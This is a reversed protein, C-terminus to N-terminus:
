AGQVESVLVPQLLHALSTAGHGDCQEERPCRAGPVATVGWGGHGLRHSRQHSLFSLPSWRDGVLM